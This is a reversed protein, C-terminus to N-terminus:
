LLIILFILLFYYLVQVKVLNSSPDVVSTATTTTGTTAAAAMIAAAARAVWGPRHNQQFYKLIFLYICSRRLLLSRLVGAQGLLEAILDPPVLADEFLVVAGHVLWSVRGSWSRNRGKLNNKRKEAEMKKGEEKKKERRKRRRGKLQKSHCPTAHTARTARTM